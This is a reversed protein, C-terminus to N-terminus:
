PNPYTLGARTLAGNGAGAYSRITATNDVTFWYLGFSSIPLVPTVPLAPIVSSALVYTGGATARFNTYTPISVGGGTLAPSQYVANQNDSVLANLQAFFQFLPDLNGLGSAGAVKQWARQVTQTNQSAM